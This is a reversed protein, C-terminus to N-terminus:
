WGLLLFTVLTLNNVKKIKNKFIKPNHFFLNEKKGPEVVPRRKVNEQLNKALVTKVLNVNYGEIENKDLDFGEMISALEAASIEPQIRKKVFLSLSAIFGRDKKILGV